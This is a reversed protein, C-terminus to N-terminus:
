MRINYKYNTILSVYGYVRIKKQRHKKTKEEGGGLKEQALFPLNHLWTEVPPWTFGNFFNCGVNKLKM